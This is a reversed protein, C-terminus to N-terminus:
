IEGRILKNTSLLYFRLFDLCDIAYYFYYVLNPLQVM